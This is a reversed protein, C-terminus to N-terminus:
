NLFLEKLIFHKLLSNRHVKAKKKQRLTYKNYSHELYRVPSILDIESFSTLESLSEPWVTSFGLMKRVLFLVSSGTKLSSFLNLEYEKASCYLLLRLLGLFNAKLVRKNKYKPPPAALAHDSILLTALCDFPVVLDLRFELQQSITREIRVLLGLNEKGFCEELDKVKLARDVNERMKSSMMLCVMGVKVFYNNPFLKKLIVMDFLLLAQTFTSFHFEAKVSVDSIINFFLELRQEKQDYNQIYHPHNTRKAKGTLMRLNMDHFDNRLVLLDEKLLIDQHKKRIFFVEM